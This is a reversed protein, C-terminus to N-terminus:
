SGDDPAAASVWLIEWRNGEPDTVLASRGGFPQDEPDSEPRAGAQVAAAFAAGVGDRTDVKVVLTVVPRADTSAVTSDEDATSAPYLALVIDGLGFQALTDSGGRIEPWGLARYFRRLAPLNTASLVVM